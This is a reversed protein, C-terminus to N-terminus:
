GPAPGDGGVRRKLKSWLSDQERQMSQLQTEVWNHLHVDNQPTPTPAVAPRPVAYAPPAVAPPPPVPASTPAAAPPLQPPRAMAIM